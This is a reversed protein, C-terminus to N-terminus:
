RSSSLVPVLMQFLHAPLDGDAQTSNLLIVVSVSTAPNHMALAQFGLGNGTHGIFDGIQGIGLGYADYEPSRPDDATPGFSALRLQQTHSDLLSGTALEDAWVALDTATGFLGGAAGFLTPSFTPLPELTGDDLQYSTATTLQINSDVPYSVSKLDLPSSIQAHVTEGWGQGTVKEIVLGLLVTNTNSYMFQTDPEFEIPAALAPAILATDTISAAPNATLLEGLEPMASYNALGSRMQALHRLTIQDGNPVGEVYSSIPDDLAVSGRDVLQLLATVTFSKTISRYAFVQDLAVPEANQELNNYVYSWQPAGDKTVLFVAGPIQSDTLMESVAAELDAGLSARSDQTEARENASDAASSACGILSLAIASFVAALALRFSGM